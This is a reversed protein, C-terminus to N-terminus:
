GFNKRIGMQHHGGTARKPHHNKEARLSNKAYGIPATDGDQLSVKALAENNKM